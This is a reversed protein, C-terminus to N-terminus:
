EANSNTPSTCINAGHKCAHIQAYAYVQARARQLRMTSTCPMRTSPSGRTPAYTPAHKLTELNEIRPIISNPFDTYLSHMLSPKRVSLRIPDVIEETAQASGMPLDCTSRGYLDRM